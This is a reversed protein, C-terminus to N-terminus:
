SQTKETEVALGCEWGGCSVCVTRSRYGGACSNSRGLPHRNMSLIRNAWKDRIRVVGRYREGPSGACVRKLGANTGLAYFCLLLRKQLTTRDM